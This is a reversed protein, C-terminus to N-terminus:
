NVIEDVTTVPCGYGCQSMFEPLAEGARTDFFAYAGM